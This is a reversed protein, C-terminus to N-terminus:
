DLIVSGWFFFFNGIVFNMSWRFKGVVWFWKSMMIFFDIIVLFCFFCFDGFFDNDVVFDNVSNIWLLFLIRLDVIDLRVYGLKFKSLKNCEERCVIM